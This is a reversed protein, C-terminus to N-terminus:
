LNDSLKALRVLTWANTSNMNSVVNVVPPPPPPPVDRIDYDPAPLEPPARQAHPGQLFSDTISDTGGGRVGGIGM